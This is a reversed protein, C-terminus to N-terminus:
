QTVEEQKRAVGWCDREVTYGMIDILGADELLVRMGDPLIRYCDIPYRHIHWSWPSTIFVKGGAKVVRGMERVLLWPRKSHELCQGSIVVDFTNSPFPLIDDREMVVDVNPGEVIDCGTYQWSQPFITRYSSAITRGKVIASGVDLVKGPAPHEDFHETLLRTMERMSSGHM